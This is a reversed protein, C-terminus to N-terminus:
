YVNVLACLELNDPLWYPPYWGAYKLTETDCNDLFKIPVYRIIEKKDSETISFGSVHGIGQSAKKGLFHIWKDILRYVENVNDSKFYFWVKDILKVSIPMDYSKFTERNVNIQAKQKGFDVISDNKCDWRKRWRKTQEIIDLEDVHMLSSIFYGNEHRLIPMNSFDILEEKDYNIKQIMPKGQNQERVYAFALISDFSPLDIYSIGKKLRFEIKYTKNEM